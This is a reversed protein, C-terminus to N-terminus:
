QGLSELVDTCHQVVDAAAEAHLKCHAHHDAHKACLEGSHECAAITAQLLQRELRSDDLSRVIVSRAAGVIDLSTLAAATEAPRDGEAIMASACSGAALEYAALSDLLAAVAELDGGREAALGAKLDELTASM